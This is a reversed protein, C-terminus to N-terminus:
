LIICLNTGKHCGDIPLVVWTSYLLLQFEGKCLDKGSYFSFSWKLEVVSPICLSIAFSQKCWVGALWIALSSVIRPVNALDSCSCQWPFKWARSPLLHSGWLQKTTLTLLILPQLDQLIIWVLMRELERICNTELGLTFREYGFIRTMHVATGM